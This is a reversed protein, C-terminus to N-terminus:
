GTPPTHLFCMPSLMSFTLTFSSINFVTSLHHSHPLLVHPQAGAEVQPITHLACLGFSAMVFKKDSLVPITSSLDHSHAARRPAIVKCSRVAFLLAAQESAGACGLVHSRCSGLARVCSAAREQYEAHSGCSDPICRVELVTCSHLMGRCGAAHGLGTRVKLQFNGQTKTMSPYSYRAFKKIEEDALAQEVVQACVFFGFVPSACM